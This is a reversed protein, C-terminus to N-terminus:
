ESMIESRLTVLHNDTWIELLASALELIEDTFPDDALCIASLEVWNVYTDARKSKEM